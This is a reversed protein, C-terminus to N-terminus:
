AAAKKLARKGMKIADRPMLTKPTNPLDVAEVILKGDQQGVVKVRLTGMRGVPNLYKELVSNALTTARSEADAKSDGWAVVHEKANPGYQLTCCWGGTLGEETKLKWGEREYM